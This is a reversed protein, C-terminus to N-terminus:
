SRAAQGRDEERVAIEALTEWVDQHGGAECHFPVALQKRVVAGIFGPDLVHSPATASRDRVVRADAVLGVLQSRNSPMSGGEEDDHALRRKRQQRLVEDRRHGADRLEKSVVAARENRLDV